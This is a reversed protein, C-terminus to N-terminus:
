KKPASVFKQLVKCRKGFSSAASEAGINAYEVGRDYLYKYTENITEQSSGWIAVAEQRVSDTVNLKIANSYKQAALCLKQESRKDINKSKEKKIIREAEKVEALLISDNPNTRVTLKHTSVPVNESRKKPILYWSGFGLVAVVLVGILM